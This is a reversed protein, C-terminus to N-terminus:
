YSVPALKGGLDFAILAYAPFENPQRGRRDNPLLFRKLVKEASREEGSRPRLGARRTFVVDVPEAIEACFQDTFVCRALDDVFPKPNELRRRAITLFEHPM